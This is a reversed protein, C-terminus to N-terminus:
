LFPCIYFMYGGGAQKVINNFMDKAYMKDMRRKAGELLQVVDDLKVTESEEDFKAKEKM